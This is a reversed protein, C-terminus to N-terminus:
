HLVAIGFHKQTDYIDCLKLNYGNTCSKSINKTNIVVEFNYDNRLTSSATKLM